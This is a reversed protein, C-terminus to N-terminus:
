NKAYKYGLGRVTIIRKEDATEVKERLNSMHVMIVQDDNNHYEGYIMKAIQGKTYVRGPSKMLLKLIKLETSTLEVDKDDVKVNLTELNIVVGGVSIEEIAEVKAEHPQYDYSRRLNAKIRSIVELPNFPKTVYDDAGLDLGLIREADQDKASLVIVPFKHDIRIKKILEYGNLYPMMIDFVGIHIEEKQIIEYAEAGDYATFVNFLTEDLYLKLLDILSVEDDVLLINYKM